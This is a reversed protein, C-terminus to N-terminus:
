RAVYGGDVSLATGTVFSAQESCLWVIADAIERPEAMREMPSATAFFMANHAADATMRTRVPGPCVANVRIGSKAYDLAATKTLGIVGHKAASYAADAASAGVLGAVSSVNVIAGGGGATLAPIQHRMGLWVGTLDVDLIRRWEAEEIEATQVRTSRGLTIGANNVACDLRGYTQIAADVARASDDSRSVDGIVAIAEGGADRVLSVTEEAAQADIDVVVVRVDSEAFALASARGIGGGGGTVLSVRVSILSVRV